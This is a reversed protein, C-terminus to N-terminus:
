NPMPKQAISLTVDKEYTGRRGRAGPDEGGHGADIAVIITREPRPQRAAAGAPPNANNSSAARESDAVPAPDPKAATATTAAPPSAGTQNKELMALLPDTTNAPYIDLVLRHGYEAILRNHYVVALLAFAIGLTLAVVALQLLLIQTALRLDIRHKAPV